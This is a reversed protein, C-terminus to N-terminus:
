CLWQYFDTRRESKESLKSKRDKRSGGEGRKKGKKRWLSNSPLSLVCGSDKMLLSAPGQRSMPCSGAGSIRFLFYISIFVGGGDM